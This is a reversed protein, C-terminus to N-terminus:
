TPQAASKLAQRIQEELPLSPDVRRVAEKVESAAFGMSRLAMMVQAHGADQSGSLDLEKMSGLKSKLDVIIRQASKKGIGRTATFFEVDAISIATQIEEPSGSELVALASKPGIGSVTLLQGFLQREKQSAFGFLTIQDDRFHTSIFLRVTSGPTLRVTKMVQVSPYVLYGVGQVDVTVTAGNRELVQGSLHSIM